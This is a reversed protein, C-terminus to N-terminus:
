ITASFTKSRAENLHRVRGGSTKVFVWKEWIGIEIPSLGNQEREFNCVGGFDPTGKLEGELSYTWGHYPCRLQNAHGDPGTMVAAAHHRCVNFFGRVVNDSGRVIVIPEDAIEATVYDGPEGLQDVRAAFQWSSGFVAQRELEFIRQDTYWAAPITSAEALPADPYYSEIIQRLDKM